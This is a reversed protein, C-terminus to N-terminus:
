RAALERDSDRASANAAAADQSAAWQRLIKNLVWSMPRDFRECQERLAADYAVDITTSLPV